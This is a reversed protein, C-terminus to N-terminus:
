HPFFERPARSRTDIDCNDKKLFIAQKGQIKLCAYDPGRERGAVIFNQLLFAKPDMQGPPNGISNGQFHYIVTKLGNHRGHCGKDQLLLVRCPVGMDDHFVIVRNLPMKCYAALPGASEGSLNMGTQPKTLFVGADGVAGTFLRIIGCVRRDDRCKHCTGHYKEGPNGLGVFLWPRPQAAIFLCLRVIM